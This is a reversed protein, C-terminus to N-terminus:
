RASSGPVLVRVAAPVVEVDSPTTGAPEGDAVMTLPGAADVRIRKGSCVPPVGLMRDAIAEPLRALTIGFDRLAEGTYLFVEFRGDSMDIGEALRGVGGFGGGNAVICALANAEHVDGDCTVTYRTTGLDTLRELGAIVYALGGIRSKLERTALEDIDAIAGCACRLLFTTDGVRGIDVTRLAATPDAILAAAPALTTPIGLEGAAGNGTGGPLIALPCETGAIGDVVECVTGDGGYVGVLDVGDAVAEAALRAADGPGNTVRVDWTIGAPHFADNLPKLFPEDRGSAPNVVIRVTRFRAVSM